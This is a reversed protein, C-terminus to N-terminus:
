EFISYEKKDAATFKANKLKDYVNKSKTECKTKKNEVKIIPKVPELIKSPTMSPTSIPSIKTPSEVVKTIM